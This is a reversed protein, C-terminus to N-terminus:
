GWVVKFVAAIVAAVIAAIGTAWRAGASAGASAGTAHVEAKLTAIDERKEAVVKGLAKLEAHLNIMDARIEARCQACERVLAAIEGDQYGNRYDGSM